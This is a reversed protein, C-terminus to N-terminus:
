QVNGQFIDKLALQASDMEIRCIKILESAESYLKLAKELPLKENNMLVSIENLREMAKEFSVESM